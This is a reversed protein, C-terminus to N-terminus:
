GYPYRNLEQIDNVLNGRLPNLQIYRVLEKGLVMTVDM